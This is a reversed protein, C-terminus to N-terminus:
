VKRYVNATWNLIREVQLLVIQVDSHHQQRGLWTDKSPKSMPLWTM